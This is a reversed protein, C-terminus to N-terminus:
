LDLVRINRFFKAKRRDFQVAGHQSLICDLGGQGVVLQLLVWLFLLRLLFGVSAQPPQPPTEGGEQQIQPAIVRAKTSGRTSSAIRVAGRAARRQEQLRVPRFGESPFSQEEGLAQGATSPQTKPSSPANQRVNQLTSHSANGQEEQERSLRPEQPPTQNPEQPPTKTAAQLQRLKREGATVGGGVGGGAGLEEAPPVLVGRPRYSRPPLVARPFGWGPGRPAEEKSM